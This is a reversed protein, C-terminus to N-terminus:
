SAITLLDWLETVTLENGPRVCPAQSCSVDSSVVLLRSLVSQPSHCQALLIKLFLHFFYAWFSIVNSKWPLNRSSSEFGESENEKLSLLFELGQFTSVLFLLNQLQNVSVQVGWRRVGRGGGGGWWDGSVCVFARARMYLLLLLSFRSLSYPRPFFIYRYRKM